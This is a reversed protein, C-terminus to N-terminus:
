PTSRCTVETSRQTLGACWPVSPTSNGRGVVRNLAAAVAKATDQARSIPFRPM